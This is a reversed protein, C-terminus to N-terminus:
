SADQNLRGLRMFTISELFDLMINEGLLQVGAQGPRPNM